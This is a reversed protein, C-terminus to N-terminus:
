GHRNEVKQTKEYSRAGALGLMGLLLPMMQSLDITPMPVTHGHLSTLWTGIPSLLYNVALGLGCIYGILPRWSSAFVNTSNAEAQDVKLQSQELQSQAQLLQQQMQDRLEQLKAADGPNSGKISDIVDSIGSFLNGGLISAINFGM